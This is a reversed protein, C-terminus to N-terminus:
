PRAFVPIRERTTGIEALITISGGLGHLVEFLRELAYTRGRDHTMNSIDSWAVGVRSAVEIQSLDQREIEGAILDM